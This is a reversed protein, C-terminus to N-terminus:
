EQDADGIGVPKAGRGERIVNRLTPTEAEQRQKGPLVGAPNVEESVAKENAAKAKRAQNAQYWSQWTEDLDAVIRGMHLTLFVVPAATWQPLEKLTRGLEDESHLMWSEQGTTLLIKQELPVDDTQANDLLFNMVHEIATLPLGNDRLLKGVRLVVVHRYRWHRTARPNESSEEKVPMAPGSSIITTAWDNLTRVSLGTLAAVLSSYYRRQPRQGATNPSASQNTADLAVPTIKQNKNNM